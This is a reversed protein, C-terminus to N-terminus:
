WWNYFLLYKKDADFLEDSYYDTCVELNNLAWSRNYTCNDVIISEDRDEYYYAESGECWYFYGDVIVIKVCGDMNEIYYMDDENFREGCCECATKNNDLEMTESNNIIDFEDEGDVSIADRGIIM